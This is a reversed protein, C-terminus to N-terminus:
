YLQQTKKITCISGGLVHVDDAYVLLQHTGNLGEQIALVKRIAYELAFNLCLPSLSERQKLGNKIFFIDSLHKGVWIRNCTESQCMLWVLKMPIGFVM